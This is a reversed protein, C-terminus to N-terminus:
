QDPSIDGAQASSNDLRDELQGIVAEMAAIKEQARQLAAVQADFEERTVLDMKQFSSQMAASVTKKIDEGMANAAPLLRSIQQSLEDFFNKDVM